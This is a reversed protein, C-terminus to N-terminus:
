RRGMGRLKLALRPRLHNNNRCGHVHLTENAARNPCASLAERSGLPGVADPGFPPRVRARWVRAPRMRILHQQTCWASQGLLLQLGRAALPWLSAKARDSRTSRMPTSPSPVCLAAPCPHTVHSWTVLTHWPTTRVPRRVTSALCCCCCCDHSGHTPRRRDRRCRTRALQEDYRDRPRAPTPLAPASCSSLKKLGEQKCPASCGVSDYLCAINPCHAQPRCHLLFAAAAAM